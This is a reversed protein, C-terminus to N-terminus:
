GVGKSMAEFSTGSQQALLKPAGLQQTSIGTKKSADLMEDGYDAAKKAMGVLALSVAGGVATMTKGVSSLTQNIPRLQREFDKALAQADRFKKNYDDTSAKLAVYLSRITM